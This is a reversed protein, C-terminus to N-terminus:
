ILWVLGSLMGLCTVNFTLALILRESDTHRIGGMIDVLPKPMLYIALLAVADAFAMVLFFAQVLTYGMLVSGVRGMLGVRWVGVLVRSRSGAEGDGVTSLFRAYPIAFLWALPATMWFLTLFSRYAAFFSPRNPDNVVQPVSTRDPYGVVGRAYVIAFLTFSSL